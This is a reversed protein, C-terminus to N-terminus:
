PAVNIGEYVMFTDTSSNKLENVVGVIKANTDITTTGPTYAYCTASGLWANAIKNLQEDNIMSGPQVDAYDIKISTNSLDCHIDIASSGVNMINASTFWSYNRDMLLPLVVKPTAQAASFAGYAEGNVPLKHQNVVAVLPMSASNTTVAAAGIFKSGKVCTSTVTTSTSTFANTVFTANQHAAITQTETCATGAKSPTYSVTVDTASAGTNQLTISTTYGYNNENILPMVPNTSTSAFGSYGFLVKSSEEVVTVVIPQDSGVSASFIKPTHTETAQNFTESAGQKIVKSATTSDSYTVNVTADGSGANQVNFWTDYGYNNKMLLPIGVTTAGSSSGVYSANATQNNGHINSVAAVPQSSSIVVSGKFGSTVPLTTFARFENAAMDVTTSTAETGATGNSGTGHYYTFTVTSVSNSLNQVNITSKYSFKYQASATGQFSGLALILIAVILFFRVYKM